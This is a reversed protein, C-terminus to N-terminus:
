LTDHGEKFHSVISGYGYVLPTFALPRHTGIQFGPVQINLLEQLQALVRTIVPAPGM